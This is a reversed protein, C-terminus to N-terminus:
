LFSIMRLGKGEPKLLISTKLDGLEGINVPVVVIGFGTRIRGPQDPMNQVCLLRVKGYERTIGNYM